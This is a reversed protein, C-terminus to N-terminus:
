ENIFDGPKKRALWQEFLEIEIHMDGKKIVISKAPHKHSFEYAILWKGRDKKFVLLPINGMQEAERVTQMWFKELQSTTPNFINSNLVDDKYHKVEITYVLSKNPIYIDGKLGHNVDYAGSGPVREWKFGTSKRLLDRVATEARAGKQRSDVM